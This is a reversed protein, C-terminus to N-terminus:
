VALSMDAFLAILFISHSLKSDNEQLVPQKQLKKQQPKKPPNRQPSCRLKNSKQIPEQELATNKKKKSMRWKIEKLLLSTKCKAIKSMKNRSIKVTKNNDERVKEMVETEKIEKEREEKIEKEEKTEKEEKMEKEETGTEEMEERWNVRERGVIIKWLKM